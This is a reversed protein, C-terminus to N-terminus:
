KKFDNIENNYIKIIFGEFIYNDDIIFIINDIFFGSIDIYSYLFILFLPHSSQGQNRSAAVKIM